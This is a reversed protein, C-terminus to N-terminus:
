EGWNWKETLKGAELVLHIIAGGGLGQPNEQVEGNIQRLLQRKLIEIQGNVKPAHGSFEPEIEIGDVVENAIWKGSGGLLVKYKNM